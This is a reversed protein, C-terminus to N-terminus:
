TIDSPHGMLMEFETDCNLEDNFWEKLGVM